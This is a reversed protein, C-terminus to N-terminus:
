KLLLLVVAAIEYVQKEANDDVVRTYSCLKFWLVCTDINMLYSTICICWATATDSCDTWDMISNPHDTSDILHILSILENLSLRGFYVITSPESTICSNRLYYASTWWVPM